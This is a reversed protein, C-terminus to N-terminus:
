TVGPASLHVRLGYHAKHPDDDFWVIDKSTPRCKPLALSSYRSRFFSSSVLGDGKFSQEDHNTWHGLAIGDRKSPVRWTPRPLNIAVLLFLFWLGHTGELFSTETINNMVVSLLLTLRLSGFQFDSELDPSRM